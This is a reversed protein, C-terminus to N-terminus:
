QQHLIDEIRKIEFDYEKRSRRLSTEPQHKYIKKVDNLLILAGQLDKASGMEAVMMMGAEVDNYRLVATRYAKLAENNKHQALYIKAELYPKVRQFLPFQKYQANNNLADILLITDDYYNVRNSTIYEVLTRLAQVAQADFPQNKLRESTEIFDQKTAINAYVKQLLLRMNLLASDPM